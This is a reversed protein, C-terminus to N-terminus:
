GDGSADDFGPPAQAGRALLAAGLGGAVLSALFVGLKANEAVVPDDFALNAIFLSVTFGIGAVAAAGMIHSWGVGAPLRGWGARVALFSAASIGALKGVVLGLVIGISVRSTLASGLTSPDIRLGANALAFLPIVVFSTWPHLLHELREAVSVVENSQLRLVRLSEADPEAPLKAAEDVIDGFGGPDTPRAPTLLGLVVGAITAHVGSEFTALWLGAGVVAYLPVWRVKARRLAVVVAVLGAALALWAADLGGSYFVAIVLIAGIDDVIALSLLFVKLGTPVRRGLVALVGVAFAIDTAMPIGWGSSAGGGANVLAYLLAPVVMGGLAAIAPLAANRRDSLEGGVLERKIELGVVFFFLAMLGDNVWHRLDEAIEFGGIAIRIETHWLAEYSEHFPSNAWALAVITAALLVLGGAVETGLFMRLPRALRRPVARDSALWSDALPPSPDTM